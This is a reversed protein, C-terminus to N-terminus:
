PALRRPEDGDAMRPREDLAAVAPAAGMAVQEVRKVTAEYRRRLHAQMVLQLDAENMVVDGAMLDRLEVVGDLEPWPCRFPPSDDLLYLSARSAEAQVWRWFESWDPLPPLHMAVVAQRLQGPTPAFERGAMGVMAARIESPDLDGMVDMWVQARSRLAEKQAPAQYHPWLEAMYAILAVAESHQM